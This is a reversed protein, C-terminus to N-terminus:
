PPGEAVAQVTVNDGAFGEATSPPQNNRSFSDWTFPVGTRRQNDARDKAESFTRGCVFSWYKSHAYVAYNDANQLVENQRFNKPNWKTSFFLLQEANFTGYGNAPNPGRFDKIFGDPIWTYFDPVNRFLHTWHMFEHLVVGGPSLMWDTDHDGLRDCTYGIFPTNAPPPDRLRPPPNEITDLSPYEFLEPCLSMLATGDSRTNLHAYTSRCSAFSLEASTLGPNDGFSIILDDFDPNLDPNSPNLYQQVNDQRIDADLPINAITRFLNRVFSQHDKQFYRLFSDECPSFTAAVVRAERLADKFATQLDVLREADGGPPVYFKPWSAACYPGHQLIFYIFLFIAHGPRWLLM